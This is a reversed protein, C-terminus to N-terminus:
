SLPLIVQEGLAYYIEGIPEGSDSYRYEIRSYGAALVMEADNNDIYMISAQRGAEDYLQVFGHYGDACLCPNGDVDWYTQKTLQHNDNFEQRLEAYGNRFMAPNGETDWYAVKVLNDREDYEYTYGACAFYTITLNDDTNYFFLGTQRGEEDFERRCSSYGLISDLVPQDETNYYAEYVAHGWKDPQYRVYAYGTDTRNMPQGKEDYYAEQIVQRKGNYIYRTEYRGEKLVLKDEWDYFKLSSLQGKRDYEHREICYGQDNNVYNGDADTYARWSIQGWTANYELKIGPYGGCEYLDYSDSEFVPAYGNAQFGERSGSARPIIAYDIGNACCSSMIHAVDPNDSYLVEKGTQPAKAVYSDPFFTVSGNYLSLSNIIAGPCLVLLRKGQETQLRDLEDSLSLVDDSVLKPSLPLLLYSKLPPNSDAFFFVACGAVILLVRLVTYRWRKFMDLFSLWIVTMYPIIWLHRYFVAKEGFTEEVIKMVHNNVFLFFAFVIATLAIKQSKNGVIFWYIVSLAFLGLWVYNSFFKNIMQFTDTVEYM